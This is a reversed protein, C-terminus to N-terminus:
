QQQQGGRDAAEPNQDSVLLVGRSLAAPLLLWVSFRGSLLPETPIDTCQM